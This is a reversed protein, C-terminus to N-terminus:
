QTGASAYDANTLFERVNESGEWVEPMLQKKLFRLVAVKQDRNLSGLGRIKELIKDDEQLLAKLAWRTALKYCHVGTLRLGEDGRETYVEVLTFNGEPPLLEPNRAATVPGTNTQVMWGSGETWAVFVRAPDCILYRNGRTLRKPGEFRPLGESATSAKAPSGVTDVPEDLPLGASEGEDAPQPIRVAAGCKPCKRSQGALKDKANLSSQCSPCTFHIM